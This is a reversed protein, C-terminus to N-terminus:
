WAGSAKIEAFEVVIFLPRTPDPFKRLSKATAPDAAIGSPELIKSATKTESGPSAPIHWALSFGPPPREPNGSDVVIESESMDCRQQCFITPQIFGGLLPIQM